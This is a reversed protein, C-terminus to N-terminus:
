YIQPQRNMRMTHPHHGCVVSVYHCWLSRQLQYIPKPRGAPVASSNTKSIGVIFCRGRHFLWSPTLCSHLIFYVYCVNLNTAVGDIFHYQL